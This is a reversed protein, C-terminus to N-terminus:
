RKVSQVSFTSIDAAQEVTWKGQQIQQCFAAKLEGPLQTRNM